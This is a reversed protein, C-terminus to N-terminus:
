FLRTSSHLSRLNLSKSHLINSFFILLCVSLAAGNLLRVQLTNAYYVDKFANLCNEGNLWDSNMNLLTQYYNM